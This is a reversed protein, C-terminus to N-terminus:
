GKKIKKILLISCAFYGIGCIIAAVTDTLYHQGLYMRAFVVSIIFSVLISGVTIKQWKKNLVFLECFKYIFCSLVVASVTHGSPMSPNISSVFDIISNDILYPRPRNILIKLVTNVGIAVGYTVAFILVFWLLNKVPRRRVSKYLCFFGLSILMAAFTYWDAIYSIVKFFGTWFDNGSHQLFKIIDIEFPM